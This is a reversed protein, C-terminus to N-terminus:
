GTEWLVRVWKGREWLVREGSPLLQVVRYTSEPDNEQLSRAKIVCESVLTLDRPEEIVEHRTFFYLWRYPVKVRRNSFTQIELWQDQSPPKKEIRLVIV